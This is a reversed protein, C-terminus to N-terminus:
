LGFPQDQDTRRIALVNDCDGVGIAFDDPRVFCRTRLFPVGTVVVYVKQWVAVNQEM